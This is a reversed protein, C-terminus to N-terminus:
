VLGYEKLATILENIKAACQSATASTEDYLQVVIQKKGGYM